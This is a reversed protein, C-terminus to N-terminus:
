RQMLCSSEGGGLGSLGKAVAEDGCFFGLRALFVGEDNGALVDRGWLVTREGRPGRTKLLIYKLHTDRASLNWKEKM